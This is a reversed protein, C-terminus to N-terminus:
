SPSGMQDIVIGSSASLSCPCATVAAVIRFNGEKSNSPRHSLHTRYRALAMFDITAVINGRTNM